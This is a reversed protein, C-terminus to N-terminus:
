HERLDQSGFVEGSVLKLDPHHERLFQVLEDRDNPPVVAGLNPLAILERETRIKLQLGFSDDWQLEKLQSVPITRLQDGFGWTIAEMGVEFVLISRGRAFSRAQGLLCITILVGVIGIVVVPGLHISDWAFGSSGSGVGFSFGVGSYLAGAIVVAFFLALLFVFATDRGGDRKARCFSDM